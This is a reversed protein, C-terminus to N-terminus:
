EGAGVMVMTGRPAEHSGSEPEMTVAFNKAEIGAPLPPIVMAGGKADPKFMGAAIPAGGNAPFLWLEYIKEPPLPPLNSAFFILSRNHMQYIAKGHPQPKSGAAVLEVKMADPDVLTAVIERAHQLDKEQLLVRVKLEAIQRRLETNMSESSFWLLIAIAAAAWAVGRWFSRSTKAAKAAVPMRPENAIAAMLRQKSRAPPKAGVTTMALLSTDGRLMELERRCSACTALHKELSTREEGELSGLAYLALDEAFQEHVSM